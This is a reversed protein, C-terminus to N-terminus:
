ATQHICNETFNHTMPGESGTKDQGCLIKNFILFKKKKSKLFGMLETM